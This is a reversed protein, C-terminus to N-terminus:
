KKDQPKPMVALWQLTGVLGAGGIINGLVTPFMNDYMFMWLSVDAGNMMGLPILFMNAVSHEMGLAVFATTPLWLSAVKGM